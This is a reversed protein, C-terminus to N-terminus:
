VYVNSISVERNIFVPCSDEGFLYECHPVNNWTGNGQCTTLDIPPHQSFWRGCSVTHRSGVSLINGLNLANPVGLKRCETIYNFCRALTARQSINYYYIPCIALVKEFLRKFSKSRTVILSDNKRCVTTVDRRGRRSHLPLYIKDLWRKSDPVADKQCKCFCVCHSGVRFWVPWVTSLM